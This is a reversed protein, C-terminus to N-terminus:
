FYYIYITYIIKFLYILREFITIKANEFKKIMTEDNSVKSIFDTLITNTITSKVIDKSQSVLEASSEIGTGANFINM